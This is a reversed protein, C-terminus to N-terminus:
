FIMYPSSSTGIGDTIKTDSKLYFVPKKSRIENQLYAESYGPAFILWVRYHNNVYSRYSMTAEYDAKIRMWGLNCTQYDGSSSCNDSKSQFYYDYLYMLGIKAEVEDEYSNEINYLEKASLNNETLIGYKWKTDAIKNYWETTEAMYEFNESNVFVSGYYPGEISNLGQFIYSDPWLIKTGLAYWYMGDDTLKTNKILKLRGDDTIGMIRYMYKSSNGTCETMDSTGFCIYNNTVNKASGQYRRMGGTNEIEDTTINPIQKVKADYEKEMCENMNNYSKCIKNLNPTIIFYVYCYSKKNVNLSATKSSNDYTLANAIENGEEDICGSQTTDYIYNGVPWTDSESEKYTGDDQEIMIAFTEKNNTTEKLKVEDLVVNNDELKLYGIYGISISMILLLMVLLKNVMNKM